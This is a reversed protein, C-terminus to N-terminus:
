WKQKLFFLALPRRKEHRFPCSLSGGRGEFCYFLLLSKNERKPPLSLIRVQSAILKSTKLVLAMLWEAVRGYIIIARFASLFFALPCIRAFVPFIYYLWFIASLRALNIQFTTNQIPLKANFVSPLCSSKSSGVLELLFFIGMQISSAVSGGLSAPSLFTKVSLM